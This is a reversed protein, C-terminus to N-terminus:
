AFLFLVIMGILLMSAIAIPFDYDVGTRSFISYYYPDAKM